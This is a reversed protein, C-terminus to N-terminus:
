PIGSGWVYYDSTNQRWITICGAIALFFGTSNVVTGSGDMIYLNDSLDDISLSGGTGHNLVTVMSGIPFATSAALNIDVVSSGTRRIIAGAHVDDLTINATTMAISKVHNFGVDRLTGGHDNVQASSTRGTVNEEWAKLRIQGTGHSGGTALVTHSSTNANANTVYFAAASRDGIIGYGGLYADDTGPTTTPGLGTAEFNDATMDGTTTYNGTGGTKSTLNNFAHTHSDNGVVTAGVAGTVDGALATATKHYISLDSDAETTTYGTYHWSTHSAGSSSSGKYAIARDTTRPVVLFSRVDSASGMVLFPDYTFGTPGNTMTTYGGYIGEDWNTTGGMDQVAGWRNYQAINRKFTASFEGTTNVRTYATTWNTYNAGIDAGDVTGGVTISGVVDINNSDDVTLGVAGNVGINVEGTAFKHHIALSNNAGGTFTNNQSDVNAGGTTGIVSVVADADQSMYIYANELETDSNTDAYLKLYADGRANVRIGSNSSAVDRGQLTLMETPSATGIGVEGDFEAISVTGDANVELSPVGSIDNVSFIVGTMDNTISFLQGSSGEFSLTGSNAPYAYATINQAATSADAGSFVINPDDSASGDNPTIIIDKDTNAM